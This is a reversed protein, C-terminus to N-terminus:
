RVSANQVEHIFIFIIVVLLKQLFSIKIIFQKFLLVPDPLPTSGNKCITYKLTVRLLSAANVGNQEDNSAIETSM